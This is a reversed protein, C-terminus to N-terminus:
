SCRSIWDFLYFNHKIASFLPLFMQITIFFYRSKCGSLSFLVACWFSFAFRKYAVVITLIQFFPFFFFIYKKKFINPSLYIQIIKAVRKAEFIVFEFLAFFRFLFFDNLRSRCFLWVFLRSVFVWQSTLWWFDKLLLLPNRAVIKSFVHVVFLTTYSLSCKKSHPIHIGVNM